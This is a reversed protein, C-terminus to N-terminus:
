IIDSSYYQIFPMNRFYMNYLIKPLLRKYSGIRKYAFLLSARKIPDRIITELFNKEEDTIGEITNIIGEKFGSFILKRLEAEARGGLKTFIDAVREGLEIVKEAEERPLAAETIVLKYSPIEVFGDKTGLLENARGAAEIMYDYNHEEVAAEVLEKIEEVREDRRYPRYYDDRRPSLAFYLSEALEPSGEVPTSEEVDVYLVSENNLSKLVLIYATYISTLWTGMATKPRGRKEIRRIKEVSLTDYARQLVSM